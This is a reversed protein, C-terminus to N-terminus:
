AAAELGYYIMEEDTMERMYNAYTVWNTATQYAELSGKLSMFLRLLIGLIVIVIAVAHNDM